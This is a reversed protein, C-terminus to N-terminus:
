ESSREWCYSLSPTLLEIEEVLVSIVTVATLCYVPYTLLFNSVTHHHLTTFSYVYLAVVIVVTVITLMGLMRYSFVKTM